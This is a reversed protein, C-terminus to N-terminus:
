VLRVNEPMVEDVTIGPIAHAVLVHISSYANPKSLVVQKSMVAEKWPLMELLM